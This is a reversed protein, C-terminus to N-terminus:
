PLDNQSPNPTYRGTTWVRRAAEPRSTVIVYLEDAQERARLPRALCASESSGAGYVTTTM